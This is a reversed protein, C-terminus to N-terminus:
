FLCRRYLVRRFLSGQGKPIDIQGGLPTGLCVNDVCLIPKLVWEESYLDHNLGSQWPTRLGSGGGRVVRASAVTDDFYCLGSSDQTAYNGCVQGATIFEFKGYMQNERHMHYM